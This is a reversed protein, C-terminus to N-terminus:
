RRRDAKKGVGGWGVGKQIRRDVGTRRKKEGGERSGEIWKPRDKEVGVGM